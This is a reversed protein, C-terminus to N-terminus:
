KVKEQNFEEEAKLIIDDLEDANLTDNDRFHDLIWDVIYKDLSDGYKSFTLTYFSSREHKNIFMM